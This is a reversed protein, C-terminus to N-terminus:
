HLLTAPSLRFPLSPDNEYMYEVVIGKGKLASNLVPVVVKGGIIVYPPNTIDHYLLSSVLIGRLSDIDAQSWWFIEAMLVTVERPEERERQAGCTGCM